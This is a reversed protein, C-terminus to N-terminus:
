LPALLSHTHLKAAIHLVPSPSDLAHSLLTEPSWDTNYGDCRASLQPSPMASLGAITTL